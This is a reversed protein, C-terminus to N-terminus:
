ASRSCGGAPCSRRLSRARRWRGRTSIRAFPAAYSDTWVPKGTAVDLATVMEDPDRRSHVFVRAGDVVPSSYGEGVPQKWKLTVKEPWTSPVSTVPAVGDRSPGRWQPWQADASTAAIVIVVLTTMLRRLQDLVYFFIGGRQPRPM